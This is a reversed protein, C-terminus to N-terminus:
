EVTRVLGLINSVFVSDGLEDELWDDSCINDFERVGWDDM